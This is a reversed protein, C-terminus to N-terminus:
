ESIFLVTVFGFGIYNGRSILFSVSLGTFWEFSSVFVDLRRSARFFTHSRTVTPNLKVDSQCAREKFGIM